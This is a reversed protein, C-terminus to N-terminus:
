FRYAIQLNLHAPSGQFSNFKLSRPVKLDFFFDFKSYITYSLELGFNFNGGAGKYWGDKAEPYIYYKYYASNTIYNSIIYEFESAFGIHWKPKFVGVICKNGIAIKQSTFNKTKVHGTSMNFQYTIGFSRHKIMPLITGLKLEYNQKGLIKTPSSIEGFVSINSQNRIKIPFNHIYGTALVLTPEIGYKIYVKQNNKGWNFLNQSKLQLVMNFILLLTITLKRKM